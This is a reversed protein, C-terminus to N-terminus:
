SSSKFCLISMKHNLTNVAKENDKQETIAQFFNIDADNYDLFNNFVLVGESMTEVTVDM